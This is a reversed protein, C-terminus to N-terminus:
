SAYQKEWTIQQIGGNNSGKRGSKIDKHQSTPYVYTHRRASFRRLNMTRIKCSGTWTRKPHQNGYGDGTEKRWRGCVEGIVECINKKQQSLRFCSGRNKRWTLVDNPSLQRKVLRDEGNTKRCRSDVCAGLDARVVVSCSM